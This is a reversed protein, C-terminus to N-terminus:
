WDPKWRPVGFHRRVAKLLAREFHKESKILSLLARAEDEQGLTYLALAGMLASDCSDPRQLAGGFEAKRRTLELWLGSFGTELPTFVARVGPPKWLRDIGHHDHALVHALTRAASKQPPPPRRIDECGGGNLSCYRPHHNVFHLATSRDLSVDEEVMFESTLHGARFWKGDRLRLPGDDREPDYRQVHRSPVDRKSLLLRFATPNYDTIAEVWYINQDKIIDSWAFEFAVTGYMSGNAWTNASLWAVSIRSRNLVSQDYILGSKIRGDEIIRKATSIHAIHRVTEIEVEESRRIRYKDWDPM